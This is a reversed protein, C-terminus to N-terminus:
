IWVIYLHKEKNNNVLPPLGMLPGIPAFVSVLGKIKSM